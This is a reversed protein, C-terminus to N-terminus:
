VFAPVKEEIDQFEFSVEFGLGGCRRYFDSLAALTRTVQEPGLDEAFAVTLGSAESNPEESLVAGGSTTPTTEPGDQPPLHEGLILKFQQALAEPGLSWEWALTDALPLSHRRLEENTLNYYLPLIVTRHEDVQRQVLANLELQTWKKKFFNPSLIVIGYRSRALGRDISASLSKGWGISAVDFWVKAGVAELAAVLPKAVAERDESAYSIFVDYEVPRNYPM